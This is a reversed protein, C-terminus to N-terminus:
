YYTKNEWGVEWENILNYLLNHSVSGSTIIQWSRYRLLEGKWSYSKLCGTLPQQNKVDWMCCDTLLDLDTM